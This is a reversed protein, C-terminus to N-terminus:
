IRSRDNNIWILMILGVVLMPISLIQGTTLIIGFMNWIGDPERFFEALFRALAYGVFFGGLATGRRKAFRSNYLLMMLIFLVVGELAAEYLQSPHRPIYGGMPFEIAWPVSSPRGFLEGNIFNAIRGFFLGIPAVYALLDSLRLFSCNKRWAFLGVATAIGILGGHFSLGGEWIKLIEWPERLLSAPDYLLFNGLRAGLILGIILWTLLEDLVGNSISSDGKEELKANLAKALWLGLFLSIIYAIAYWRVSLFGFSFAIPDINHFPLSM